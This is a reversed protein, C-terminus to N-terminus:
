GSCCLPIRRLSHLVVLCLATIMSTKTLTFKDRTQGGRASVPWSQSSPLPVKRRGTQRPRDPELSFSERLPLKNFFFLILGLVHM